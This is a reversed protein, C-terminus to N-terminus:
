AEPEYPVWGEERLHEQPLFRTKYRMKRSGRIWYGLYVFGLGLSRTYEIHELVVYTGLSRAKLEPEFFSYVLSHGDGLRDCLCVAVLRGSEASGSDLDGESLRYETLFTDVISDEIMMAYDLAGMDAMGGDFHRAEIYRRFLAYQEATPVAEVRRAVLDRNRRLIRRQSRSPAFSAVPVRVSVCESCGECYPIYAINQSRRFGGRLLSDIVAPPKDHTLHTFLKRELRGAIYPCPQPSTVYFNPFKKNQDTVNVQDESREGAGARVGM